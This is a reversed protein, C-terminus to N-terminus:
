SLATCTVTVAPGARDVDEPRGHGVHEVLLVDDTPGCSTTRGRADRDDTLSPSWMETASRPALQRDRDVPLVLSYQVVAEVTSLASFSRPMRASPATSEADREWGSPRPPRVKATVMGFFTVNTASPLVRVTVEVLLVTKPSSASSPTTFITSSGDGGGHRGRESSPMFTTRLRTVM